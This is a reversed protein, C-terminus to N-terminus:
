SGADNSGGASVEKYRKHPPYSCFDAPADHLVTAAPSLNSLGACHHHRRLRRAAKSGAVFMPSPAPFHGFDIEVFYGFESLQRDLRAGRFTGTPADEAVVVLHSAEIEESRLSNDLRRPQHALALDEPEVIRDVIGARRQASAGGGPVRHGTMLMQPNQAEVIQQIIVVGLFAALPVPELVDAMRAQLSEVVAGREFVDLLVALDADFVPFVPDDAAAQQDVGKSIARLHAALDVRKLGLLVGNVLQFAGQLRL